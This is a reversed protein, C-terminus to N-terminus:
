VKVRDEADKLDKKLNEITDNLKLITAGKNKEEEEQLERTRQLNNELENITAHLKLM